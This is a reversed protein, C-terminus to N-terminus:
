IRKKILSFISFSNMNKKTLNEINKYELYLRHLKIELQIQLKREKLFLLQKETCKKMIKLNKFM